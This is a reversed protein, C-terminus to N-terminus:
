HPQDHPPLKKQQTKNRLRLGIALGIIISGFIVILLTLNQMTAYKDETLNLPASITNLKSSCYCTGRTTTVIKTPELTPCFRM